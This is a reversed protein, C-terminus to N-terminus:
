VKRVRGGKEWRIDPAPTAQVCCELTVADGDCCRLDKLERKIVPLTQVKRYWCFSYVAFLVANVVEFVLGFRRDHVFTSLTLWPRGRVEPINVASVWCLAMVPVSYL